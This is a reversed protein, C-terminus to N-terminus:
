NRSGWVRIRITENPHPAVQGAEMDLNQQWSGGPFISVGVGECSDTWDKFFTTEPTEISFGQITYPLGFPKPDPFLLSVRLGASSGGSTSTGWVWSMQAATLVDPRLPSLPLQFPGLLSEPDAGTVQTTLELVPKDTWCSPPGPNVPEASFAQLGSTTIAFFIVLRAGRRRPAQQIRDESNPLTHHSEPFSPM